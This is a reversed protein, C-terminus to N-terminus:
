PEDSGSVAPEARLLFQAIKATVLAFTSIGIILTFGGIVRGATTIPYIDGSGATTITGLSWWLADFFSHIRRGVGVDEAVTFAAASTIWTLTAAGFAIGAAHERIMARGGRSATGGIAAARTIIALLRFMRVGRLTRLVGFAALSPVMAVGQAAVVLLSLYESRAYLRRNSAYTIEVIYDAAFAVLVVLNVLDIFLRDSRPLSDRVVEVLLVPLSGVALAM